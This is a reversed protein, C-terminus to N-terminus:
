FFSDKLQQYLSMYRGLSAKYLNAEPTNNKGYAITIAERLGQAEGRLYDKMEKLIKKRTDKDEHVSALLKEQMARCDEAFAVLEKIITAEFTTKIGNESYAAVTFEAEQAQLELSHVLREVRERWSRFHNTLTM